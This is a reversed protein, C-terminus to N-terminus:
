HSVREKAGTNAELIQQGRIEMWEYGARKKAHLSASEQGASSYFFSNHTRSQVDTSATSFYTVKREQGTEIGLLNLMGATGGGFVVVTFIAVVVTTSTLMHRQSSPVDLSLSIAIAGRLGGFWMMVMHSFPIKDNDGRWTNIIPTLMFVSAARAVLILGITIMTLPLSFDEYTVQALCVLILLSAFARRLANALRVVVVMGVMFFIAMDAFTSMQKYSFLFAINQLLTVHYLQPNLM